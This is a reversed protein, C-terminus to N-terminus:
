SKKISLGLELISLKCEDSNLDRSYNYIIGGPRENYYPRNCDKCGSIKFPIGNQIEDYTKSELPLLGVLYGDEFKFNSKKYGKKILYTMLQVRRYSEISPSKVDELKTGKVPTFAFLSVTVNNNILDEYLDFIDEHTEGLGVIIHSSIKGKYKNGLEKIFTVKEEFNKGKINEYLDKNAADVAIGIKEVGIDFFNNIDVENEVKASVSIPINLNNKVYNIFDRAENLSEDSGMVQLCIRKINEKKYNLLANLIEEKEFEPWIVRSLKDKRSTSEISQSCFLCKNNCKDGIMLYATTPNIDLKGNSIGLEIATGISLRIM